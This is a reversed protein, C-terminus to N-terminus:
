RNEIERRMEEATREAPQAALYARICIGAAKIALLRCMRTGVNGDALEEEDPCELCPRHDRGHLRHCLARAAAEIAPDAPM